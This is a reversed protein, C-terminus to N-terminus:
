KTVRVYVWGTNSASNVRDGRYFAQFRYAVGVKAYKTDYYTSGKRNSAMRVCPSVGDLKFKGNTLKEDDFYVCQGAKVPRVSGILRIKDGSHYLVYKGSTGYFGKLQLFPYAAADEVVGKRAPAFRYDGSYVATFTTNRMVHVRATLNGFRNVRATLVQRTAQRYPRELLMVFRGNYAHGLHIQVVADTDYFIAKHRLTISLAAPARSVAVRSTHTAPAHDVDGVYSATYTVVGGVPPHDTYSAVGDAGTTVRAIDSVGAADHRVVTVRGDLPSGSSALSISLQTAGTRAVGKPATLALSTPHAVPDLIVHLRFPAKDGLAGTVAYLYTASPDLALGDRQLWTEPDNDAPEFTQLSSGDPAYVRIDQDYSAAMGAVVQGSQAVVVADPYPHNTGYQGTRTLTSVDYRAIDYDGASATLVESGDASLAIQALNGGLSQDHALTLTTGSITYSRLDSGGIGGAFLMNPASPGGALLPPASLLTAVGPTVTTSALDVVGINGSGSDCGYGFWVENALPLVSAPCTTDGTAYRATETLTTTDIAAIANADSLAVYLTSGDPSLAMGDAGNEGTISTDATGDANRVLIATTGPGGTLYVHDHGDALVGRFTPLDISVGPDAGSPAAGAIALGSCVLALVVAVVLRRRM